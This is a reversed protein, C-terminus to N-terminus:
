GLSQKTSDFLATIRPSGRWLFQRDLKGHGSSRTGMLESSAVFRSVM